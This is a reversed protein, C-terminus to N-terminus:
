AIAATAQHDVSQRVARIAADEEATSAAVCAIFGYMSRVTVNRMVNAGTPGQAQAHRRATVRMTAALSRHLNARGQHM